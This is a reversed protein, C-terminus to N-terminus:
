LRTRFLLFTSYVLLTHFFGISENIIPVTVCHLVNKAVSLLSIM